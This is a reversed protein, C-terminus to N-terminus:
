AKRGPRRELWLPWLAMAALLALNPLLLPAMPPAGSLTREFWTAAPQRVISLGHYTFGVIGVVAQVGLV